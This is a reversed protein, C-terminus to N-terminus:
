PKSGALAARAVARITGVRHADDAQAIQELAKRLAANEARLCARDIMALEIVNSAEAVATRTAAGINEFAAVTDLAGIAGRARQNLGHSHRQKANM